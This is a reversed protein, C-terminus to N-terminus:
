GQSRRYRAQHLLAQSTRQLREIDPVHSELGPAVMGLSIQIGAGAGALGIGIRIGGIDASQAGVQAAGPRRRPEKGLLEAVRGCLLNVTPDARKQEDGVKASVMAEYMAPTPRTSTDSSVDILESARM